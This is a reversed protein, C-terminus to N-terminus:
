LSPLEIFQPRFYPILIPRKFLTHPLISKRVLKELNTIKIILYSGNILRITYCFPFFLLHILSLNTKDSSFNNHNTARSPYRWHSPKPSIPTNSSTPPAQRPGPPINIYFTKFHPSPLFPTPFCFCFFLFLPCKIGQRFITRKLMSSIAIHWICKWSKWTYFTYLLIHSVSSINRM